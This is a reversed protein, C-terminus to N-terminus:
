KSGKRFAVQLKPPIKLAPANTREERADALDESKLTGNKVMRELVVKDATVVEVKVGPLEQIRKPLKAYNYSVTKAGAQRTFESGLNKPLEQTARMAAEVADLRQNYAEFRALLPQVVADHKSMYELLEARTETFSAVAATVPHTEEVKAVEAVREDLQERQPKRLVLRAM